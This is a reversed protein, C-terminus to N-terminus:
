DSKMFEEFTVIIQSLEEIGDRLSSVMLQTDDTIARERLKRHLHTAADRMKAMSDVCAVVYDVSQRCNRALISPTQVLQETLQNPREVFLKTLFEVLKQTPVVTAPYARLAARRVREDEKFDLIARRIAATADSGLNRGLEEAADLLSCLQIIYDENKRGKGCLRTVIEREIFATVEEQNVQTKGLAHLIATYESTQIGSFDRDLLARVAQVDAGYHALLFISARRVDNTGSVSLEGIKKLDGIKFLIQAERSSRLAWIAASVERHDAGLDIIEFLKQHVYEASNQTGRIAPLLQIGILKDKLHPSAMLREVTEQRVTGEPYEAEPSTEYVVQFANAVIDKKADTASALDGDLGARIAALSALKRVAISNDDLGNIISPWHESVLGPIVSSAEFAAVKARESRNFCKGVVQLLLPTRLWKVRAAAECLACLIKDENRTCCGEMAEIIKGSSFDRTCALSVFAISAACSDINPDSLLDVFFGEFATLGCAAVLEEFRRGIESRVWADCKAPGKQLCLKVSGSLLRVAAESPVECELACDIAFILLKADVEGFKSGDGIIRGLVPAIDESEGIIGALLTLIELWRTQTVLMPLDLKELERNLGVAAFYEMFSHHMFTVVSAEDGEHESGSFAILGTSEAVKQIFRNADMQAVPQGRQREMVVRIVETVERRTPLIGSEKRYVSLAVAGLRERLDQASVPDHGSQRGRVSALTRIAEEYIRHRKASPAGSNAYILVLLTLLLPNQALRAVGPKESCDKLLQRVISGDSPNSLDEDVVVGTETDSVKLSLVRTALTAIETESLGQLELKKLAPLLNVVNVAAPRSTVVFRNGLPIATTILENIKQVVLARKEVSVVEDLGDFFIALRGANLLDEMVRLPFKMGKRELLRSAINLLGATNLEPESAAQSLQIMVPIHISHWEAVNEHEVNVVSARRSYALIESKAFCTKGSGPDGILLVAGFKQCYERAQSIERGESKETHHLFQQKIQQKLNDSAPYPALHDELLNDLRDSTSSEIEAASGDIYVKDLSFDTFRLGANALAAYKMVNNEAYCQELYRDEDFESVDRKEGDLENSGRYPMKALTSNRDRLEVVLLDTPPLKQGLPDIVEFELSPISHILLVHVCDEDLLLDVSVEAADCTSLYEAQRTTLLADTRASLDKNVLVELPKRTRLRLYMVNADSSIKGLSIISVSRFGETDLRTNYSEIEKASLVHGTGPICVLLDRNKGDELLFETKGDASALFEPSSSKDSRYSKIVECLNILKLWIKDTPEAVIAISKTQPIKRPISQLSKTSILEPESDNLLPVRLTLSRHTTGATFGSSFDSRTTEEWRGVHSDWTFSNLNLSKDLECLSFSNKYPPSTELGLPSIYSAGFGISRVTGDINTVFKPAHEHGHLYVLNKDILLTEFPKQDNILFCNIPHHGLLFAPRNRQISNVLKRISPLPCPTIPASSDEDKDSFYATNLALVDFPLNSLPVFRSVETEPDPGIFGNRIVFDRYNAFIKSRHRRAKIGLDDELFFVLQNRNKIGEWSIPDAAECDVDHNGPVAFFRSEKFAGLRKLPKM